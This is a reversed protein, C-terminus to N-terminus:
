KNELAKIWKYFGLVIFLLLPYLLLSYWLRWWGHNFYGWPDPLLIVAEYLTIATGFCLVYFVRRLLSRKFPYKNLFIINVAPIVLTMVLLDKANLEQSFYWYAQYKGMLFFDVLVQVAITFTWIHVSQSKTLKTNLLFAASNFLLIAVLLGFVSM